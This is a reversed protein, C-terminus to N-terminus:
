NSGCTSCAMEAFSRNFLYEFMPSATTKTSESPERAIGLVVKTASGLSITVNIEHRTSTLQRPHLVDKQYDGPGTWLITVM